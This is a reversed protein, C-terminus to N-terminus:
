PRRVLTFSRYETASFLFQGHCRKRTIQPPLEEVYDVLKRVEVSRNDNRGVKSRPDERWL